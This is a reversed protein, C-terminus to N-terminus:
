PKVVSRLGECISRLKNLAHTDNDSKDATIKLAGPSAKIHYNVGSSIQVDKKVTHEGGFVIEPQLCSDIYKEVQSAQERDYKVKVTAAKSSLSYSFSTASGPANEHLFASASVVLVLIAAVM